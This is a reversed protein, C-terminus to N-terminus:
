VVQSVEVHANKILDILKVVIRWESFLINAIEPSTTSTLINKFVELVVIQVEM